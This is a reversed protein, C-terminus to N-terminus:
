ANLSRRSAAKENERASRAGVRPLEISSTAVPVGIIVAQDTIVTIPALTHTYGIPIGIDLVRDAGRWLYSRWVETHGFGFLSVNM